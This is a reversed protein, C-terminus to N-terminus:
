YVRLWPCSQMNSEMEDADDGVIPDKKFHSFCSSSSVDFYSYDSSLEIGSLTVSQSVTLKSKPVCLSMQSSQSMEDSHHFFM